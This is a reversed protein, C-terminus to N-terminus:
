ERLGKSDKPDRLDPLDLKAEQDPRALKRNSSRPPLNRRRGENETEPFTWKPIPGFSGPISRPM